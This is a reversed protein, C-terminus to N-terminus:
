TRIYQLSLVSFSGGQVLQGQDPVLDSFMDGDLVATAGDKMFVRFWVPVGTARVNTEPAIPNASAAGNTPNGFSPSGFRCEAFLTQAGVAVEPSAPRPAGYVRLYGGDMQRTATMVELNRIDAAVEIV